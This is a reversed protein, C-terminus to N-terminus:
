YNLVKNVKVLPVLCNSANSIVAEKGTYKDENVGMVFMSADTSPFTIIVKKAGAQIYPQCEDVTTL